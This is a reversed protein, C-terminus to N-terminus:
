VLTFRKSQRPDLSWEYRMDYNEHVSLGAGNKIKSFFLYPAVFAMRCLTHVRDERGMEGDALRQKCM